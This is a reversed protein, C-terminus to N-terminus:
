FCRAYFSLLHQYQVKTLSLLPSPSSQILAMFRLPKYCTFSSTNWVNRMISSSKQSSNHRSFHVNSVFFSWIMSFTTVLSSANCRRNNQKGSASFVVESASSSNYTVMLTNVKADEKTSSYLCAFLFVKDFFLRVCQVWNIVNAVHILNKICVISYM